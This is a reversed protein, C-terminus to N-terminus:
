GLALHRGGAGPVGPQLRRRRGAGPFASRGHLCGFTVSSIGHKRCVDATKAGAEQEKLM